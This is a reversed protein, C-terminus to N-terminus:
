GGEVGTSIKFFDNLDDNKVLISGKVGGEMLLYSFFHGCFSAGKGGWLKGGEM